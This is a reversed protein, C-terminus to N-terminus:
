TTRPPIKPGRMELRGERIHESYRLNLVLLVVERRQEPSLKGITKDIWDAAESSIEMDRQAQQYAEGATFLKAM